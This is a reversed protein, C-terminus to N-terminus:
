SILALLGEPIKLQKAECEAIFEPILGPCFAKALKIFSVASAPDTNYMAILEEASYEGLPTIVGAIDGTGGLIKSLSEDSIKM